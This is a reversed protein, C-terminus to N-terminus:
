LCCSISEKASVFYFTKNLEKNHLKPPVATQVNIKSIEMQIETHSFLFAEIFIHAM